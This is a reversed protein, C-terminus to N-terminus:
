YVCLLTVSLGLDDRRRLCSANFYVRSGRDQSTPMVITIGGNDVTCTQITGNWRTVEVKVVGPDPIGGVNLVQSVGALSVINLLTDHYSTRCVSDLNALSVDFLSAMERHRFGPAESQPCDLAAIGADPAPDYMATKTGIGVPAVATYVVDKVTGTSDTLGHLVDFYDAVPSLSAMQNHCDDISTDSGVWVKAHWSPGEGIESCDDDDTVVVILLRAGDRLFGGNGGADLPTTSLPPSFARRLAEFPTEQGSGTVGVRVLRSFKDVLEPDDSTLVRESGTGLVVGGDAAADPVPQLRGSKSCYSGNSGCYRYFNTAGGDPYAIHINEYVSSTIVGIRLDQSLGGAERLQSVFTTLERAVEEQHPVMSCSDDVMFMVDLKQPEVLPPQQDCSGPLNSGAKEVPSSCGLCSNCAAGACLVWIAITTKLGIRM